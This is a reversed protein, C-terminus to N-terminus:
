PRRRPRRWRSPLLSSWTLRRRGSRAPPGQPAPVSSRPSSAAVAASPAATVTAPTGPPQSDSLPPVALALQVPVTQPTHQRAHDRARQRRHRERGHEARELAAMANLADAPRFGPQRGLAPLSQPVLGWWAARDAPHPHSIAWDRRWSAMEGSWDEGPQATHTRPHGGYPLFLTDDGLWGVTAGAAALQRQVPTPRVKTHAITTGHPQVNVTGAMDCHLPDDRDFLWWHVATDGYRSRVQHLRRTVTAPTLLRRPRELVAVGHEGHRVVLAPPIEWREGALEVDLHLRCRAPPLVQLLTERLALMTTLDTQVDAQHQASAPCRDGGAAGDHRFRPTFRSAPGAPRQFILRSGCALCRYRGEARGLPLGACADPEHGLDIVRGDEAADVALRSMRPLKSRERRSGAALALPRPPAVSVLATTPRPSRALSFRNTGTM